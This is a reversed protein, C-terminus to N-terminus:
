QCVTYTEQKTAAPLPCWRFIPQQWIDRCYLSLFFRYQQTTFWKRKRKTLFTGNAIFCTNPNHLQEKHMLYSVQRSLSVRSLDIVTDAFGQYCMMWQLKRPDASLQSWSLASMSEVLNFPMERGQGEYGGVWTETNLRLSNDATVTQWKTLAPSLIHQTDESPKTPCSSYVTAVSPSPVHM